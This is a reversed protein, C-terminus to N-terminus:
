KDLDRRIKQSKECVDLGDENLIYPCQWTFKLNTYFAKLGPTTELRPPSGWEHGSGNKYYTDPLYKWRFNRM